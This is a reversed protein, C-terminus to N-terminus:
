TVRVSAVFVAYFMELGVGFLSNILFTIMIHGFRHFGRFSEAEYKDLRTNVTMNALGSKVPGILDGVRDAPYTDDGDVMVYIHADVERLMRRVVNGRKQEAEFGLLAGREVAAEGSGDTGSNEYVFISAGPLKKRFDSVV